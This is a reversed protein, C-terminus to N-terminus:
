PQNRDCARPCRADREVARAACNADLAREAAREGIDFLRREVVYTADLHLALAVSAIAEGQDGLQSVDSQQM